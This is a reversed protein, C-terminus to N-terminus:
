RRGEAHRGARRWYERLCGTLRLASAPDHELAWALAARLNDHEAELQRLGPQRATGPREPASRAALGLCWALHRRQRWRLLPAPHGGAGFPV